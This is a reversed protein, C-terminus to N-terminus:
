PILTVACRFGVSDSKSSPVDRARTFSRVFDIGLDWSGGRLVKYEGSTPGTPNVKREASYPGYWDAVWEWVNGALDLAGVWSAGDPFSGVPATYRYGDNVSQDSWSLPCNKDCFNLRRGDFTNGWPFEYGQPGRAAYEWEAETPLRGGSWSCYAVADPWKIHAVPHNDPAPVETGRPYAWNAGVVEEWTNGTFVWSWGDKEVETKYGTAAVFRRFHAVSVESKDLWFGNLVVMNAPQTNRDGESSGMQFEGAPVYVMVMGDAPRTWTDGPTRTATPTPIDTSTATPTSTPTPTTAPTNTPTGTATATPTTIQIETVVIFTPDPASTAVVASTVPQVASPQEPIMKVLWLLGCLLMVISGGGAWIQWQRLIALTRFMFMQHRHCRAELKAQTQTFVRLTALFEGGNRYRRAPEENLARMVIAELAPPVESRLQRPSTGPEQQKYTRGTLMEWLVAGLMYVDASPRLPETQLAEPARYHANGPHGDKDGQWRTTSHQPSQVVGFDGLKARGAADLLINNPSIDRHVLDLSHEHVYALAETIDLAIQVAQNM